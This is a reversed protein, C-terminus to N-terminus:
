KQNAFQDRLEYLRAIYKKAPLGKATMETIWEEEM